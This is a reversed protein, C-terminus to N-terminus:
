DPLRITMGEALRRPEGRLKDQNLRLIEEWRGTNGLHRQAIRYLTDGAQVTYTRGTSSSPAAAARDRVSAEAAASRDGTTSSVGRTGTSSAAPLMLTDGIRLSRPSKIGPNAALIEQVKSRDQYYRLAVAELTDGEAIVHKRPQGTSDAASQPLRPSDDFAPGPRAVLRPPQQAAPKQDILKPISAAIQDGTPRSWETPELGDTGSAPENRPKGASVSPTFRPDGTRDASGDALRTAPRAGVTENGRPKGAVSPDPQLPRTSDHRQAAASGSSQPQQSLPLPRSASAPDALVIPGASEGSKPRATAPRPFIPRRAQRDDVVGTSSTDDAGSTRARQDAPKQAVQSPRQTALRSDAPKAASNPSAGPEAVRTPASVLLEDEAGNSGYFFYVSAIVVIVLGAAIGVRTETGM